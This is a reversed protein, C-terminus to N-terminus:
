GLSRAPWAQQYKKVRELAEMDLVLLQQPTMTDELDAIRVRRAIPNAKVREIFEDSSEDSRKTLCDLAQLVQEPYGKEQLDALTFRIHILDHLVGVTREIESNLKMMVRLAHFIYPKGGKGAPSSKHAEAALIIADELTPVTSDSSPKM